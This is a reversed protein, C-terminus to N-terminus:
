TWGGVYKIIKKFIKRLFAIIKSIGSKVIYFPDVQNAPNLLKKSEFRYTYSLQASLGTDALSIDTCKEDM